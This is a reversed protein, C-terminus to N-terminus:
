RVRGPRPWYRFRVLGAISARAVPGFSRGDTSGEPNDGVVLFEDSGLIREDVRDGPVATVRKVLDLRRGPHGVVVVSGRRVPGIRTAVLWDGPRVTPSMSAGAVEVRFAGVARGAAWVGGALGAVWWWRRM